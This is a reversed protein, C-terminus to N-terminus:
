MAAMNGMWHAGASAVAVMPRAIGIRGMIVESVMPQLTESSTPIFPRDAFNKGITSHGLEDILPYYATTTAERGDAWPAFFQVDSKQAQELHAQMQQPM